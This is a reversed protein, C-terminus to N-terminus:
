EYFESYYRDFTVIGAEHHISPALCNLHNCKLSNLVTCETARSISALSFDAPEEHKSSYSSRCHTIHDSQHYLLLVFLLCRLVM